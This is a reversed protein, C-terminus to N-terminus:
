SGSSSYRKIGTNWVLLGVGLLAAAVLPSVWALLGVDKGLLYSAPYFSTLGFPLIWTFVVNVAKGYITLPYKAFEHTEFTGWMVPLSDMMWFSLSSTILNIGMFILGGSLVAVVTYLANELSWPINLTLSSHIILALGVVFNGVGDQCFRDALLHFLPNVPRVLYRDFNGTQLYAWGLRWLNDAFMHNLSKALTLFGYILLMQELTWGKLLPVQQMVVWLTLLGALQMFFTSLAGIIFSSRYELSTKLNQKFFHGYLTLHHLM